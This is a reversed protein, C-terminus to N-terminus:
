SRPSPRRASAVRPRSAGLRDEVEQRDPRPGEIGADVASRIAAIHAPTSGCCAGVIRAGARVALEVYASIAEPGVPYVLRDSEYLPMGFNAGVGEPPLPESKSQSSRSPLLRRSRASRNLCTAPPASVAQWRWRLIIDAGAEVFDVRPVM